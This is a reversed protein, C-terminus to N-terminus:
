TFTRLNFTQWNYSTKHTCMIKEKKKTALAITIERAKRAWQDIHQCRYDQGTIAYFIKGCKGKENTCYFANIHLWLSILLYVYRVLPSIDYSVSQVVDRAPDIWSHIIDKSEEVNFLKSFHRDGNKTSYICIWHGFEVKRYVPISNKANM